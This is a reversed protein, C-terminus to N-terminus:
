GWCALVRYAKKLRRSGGVTGGSMQSQVFGSFLSPWSWPLSLLWHSVLFRSCTAWIKTGLSYLVAESIKLLFLFIQPTSIRSLSSFYVCFYKIMLFYNYKYFLSVCPVQIFFHMRLWFHAEAYWEMLSHIIM